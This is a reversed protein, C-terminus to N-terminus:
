NGGIVCRKVAGQKKCNSGKTLRNVKIEPQAADEAAVEQSGGGFMGALRGFLGAPSEAAAADDATPVQMEAEVEADPLIGIAAGLATLGTTDESIERALTQLQAEAARGAERTAADQARIAAEALARSVDPDIAKVDNGVGDVPHDLMANLRDYNVASLLTMVSEDSARARVTVTLEKGIRGTIVRFARGDSEVGFLGHNERFAVGGVMAYGESGSMANLNAEVMQLGVGTIGGAQKASRRELRLAILEEGREYVYVEEADAMATAAKDMKMLAKLVPDNKMDDPVFSDKEIDYRNDLLAADKTGWDRRTWGDPADPLHERITVSRLERRAQDAAQAAKMDGFRAPITRIYDGPSLTGPALGARRAQNVYDVAGTAVIAVAVFAGLYARSM